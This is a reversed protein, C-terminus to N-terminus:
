DDTLRETDDFWLLEPSGFVSGRRRAYARLEQRWGSEGPFLMDMQSRYCALASLKRELHRPQIDVLKPVPGAPVADPEAMSYPLPEWLRTPRGLERTARLTHLHDIHGGTPLCTWIEEPRIRTALRDLEAIVTNVLEPEPRPNRDFMGRASQCLWQGDYSRYVSDLFDLHVARVGLETMASKDEVRRIPGPNKSLGCEEHFGIAAESYPEEACGAFVTCVLVDTGAEALAALHAGVGLVADDLHPSIVLITM